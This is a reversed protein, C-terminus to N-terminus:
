LVPEQDDASELKPEDPLPASLDLPPEDGCLRTRALAMMSMGQSKAEAKLAKYEQENLAIRVSRARPESRPKKPRVPLREKNLAAWVTMPSVKYEDAIVRYTCIKGYNRGHSTCRKGYIDRWRRNRAQRSFGGRAM